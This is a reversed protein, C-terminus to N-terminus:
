EYFSLFVNHLLIFPFFIFRLSKRLPIKAVGTTTAAIVFVFSSTEIKFTGDISAVTDNVDENGLCTEVSTDATDNLLHEIPGQIAGTNDQYTVWVSKLDQTSDDAITSLYVHGAAAPQAAITHDSGDVVVSAATMLQSGSFLIEKVHNGSYWQKMSTYDEYRRDRVIVKHGTATLTAM